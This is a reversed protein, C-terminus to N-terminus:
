GVTQAVRRVERKEILRYVRWSVFGLATALAATAALGLASGSVLPSIAGALTASIVLSVFAQVSSVAGRHHPFRDLLLLTLTPFNIGIGIAHLGIPLVSWPVRASPLLLATALNIASAGLMITYGLRVTASASLKGALRGSLFAGLMMGSIAPIFLWAFHQADLKLLNLVFAPASAIYVFLANFNLTGALALPLFARDASIRRYTTALEAFSLAVRRERPHTEPLWALCAFWLAAAFAALLWFIMPWHAFAVVWGGVIPAIAPAIGFIMSVTAMLRQAEVGDFCDRIIARGVILGAGASIGQLARFALLSGVSGALACGISALVFVAVGVLIVRRRGLADSLPGHFLSMLAYAIMYVSITQQMAFPSAGLERAIAPFAPFITDISFPGFMALAALLPALRRRRPSAVVTM